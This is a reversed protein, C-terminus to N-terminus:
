NLNRNESQYVMFLHFGHFVELDLVSGLLQVDEPGELLVLRGELGDPGIAQDIVTLPGLGRNHQLGAILLHVLGVDADARHIGQGIDQFFGQAAKLSTRRTSKWTLRM